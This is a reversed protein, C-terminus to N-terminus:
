TWRWFGSLPLPLSLSLAIDILLSILLLTLCTFSSHIRYILGVEGTRQRNHGFRALPDLAKTLADIERPLDPDHLDCDRLADVLIKAFRKSIMIHAISHRPAEPARNIMSLVVEFICLVRGTRAPGPPFTKLSPILSALLDVITVQVSKEPVGALAVLLRGAQTANSRLEPAM